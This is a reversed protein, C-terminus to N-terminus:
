EQTYNITRSLTRTVKPRIVKPMTGKPIVQEHIFSRDSGPDMLVNLPLRTKQGQFLHAILHTIPRMPHHINLLTNDKQTAKNTSTKDDIKEEESFEHIEDYLSTTANSVAAELLSSESETHMRASPSAPELSHTVTAGTKSMTIHLYPLATTRTTLPVHRIATALSIMGPPSASM